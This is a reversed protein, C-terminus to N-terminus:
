NIGKYELKLFTADKAEDYRVKLIVWVRHWKFMIQNGVKYIDTQDGEKRITKITTRM